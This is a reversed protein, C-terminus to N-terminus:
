SYAISKLLEATGSHSGISQVQCTPLIDHLFLVYHLLIKLHLDKDLQYWFQSKAVVLRMSFTDRPSTGWVYIQFAPQTHRHSTLRTGLNLILSAIYRWEGMYADLAHM